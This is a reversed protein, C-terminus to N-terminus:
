RKFGTGPIKVVRTEVRGVIVADQAARIANSKVTFNDYPTWRGGNHGRERTQVQYVTYIKTM